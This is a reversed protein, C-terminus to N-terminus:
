RGAWVSTCRRDPRPRRTARTAGLDLPRWWRHIPAPERQDHPSPKPADEHGSATALVSRIDALEANIEDRRRTAAALERKSRTRLRNIEGHTEDLLQQAQQEAETALRAAEKKAASRFQEAESRLREAHQEADAVEIDADTVRQHHDQEAKARRAAMEEDFDSQQRVVEARRKKYAAEAVERREGSRQEGDEVLQHAANEADEAVRAAARDATARIEGADREAQERAGASWAEVTARKARVEAEADRVLEAATVEAAALIKAVREGVDGLAWGPGTEEPAPAPAALAAHHLDSARKQAKATLEVLEAIRQDVEDPDYGRLVRRFGSQSSTM